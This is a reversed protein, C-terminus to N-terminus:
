SVPSSPLMHQTSGITNRDDKSHAASSLKVRALMTSRRRQATRGESPGDLPIAVPTFTPVHRLRLPHLLSLNWRPCNGAPLGLMLSGCINPCKGAATLGTVHVTRADIVHSFRGFRRITGTVAEWTTLRRRINDRRSGVATYTLSATRARGPTASVEASSARSMWSGPQMVGGDPLQRRSELSGVTFFTPVYKNISARHLKEGDVPSPM